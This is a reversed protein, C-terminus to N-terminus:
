RRPALGDRRGQVPWRGAGRVGPWGRKAQLPGAPRM